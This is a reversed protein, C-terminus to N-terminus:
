IRSSYAVPRSCDKQAATLIANSAYGGERHLEKRVENMMTSLLRESTLQAIRLAKANRQTVAELIKGYAHLDEKDKASIMKAKEPSDALSKLATQYHLTLEQKRRLVETQNRFDRKEVMIIEDELALTLRQMLGMLMQAFTDTPTPATIAPPM